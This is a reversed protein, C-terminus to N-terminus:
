NKKTKEIEDFRKSVLKMYRRLYPFTEKEHPKYSFINIIDKPTLQSVPLSERLTENMM